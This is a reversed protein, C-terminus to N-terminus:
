AYRWVVGDGGDIRFLGMYSLPLKSGKGSWEVFKMLRNSPAWNVHDRQGDVIYKETERSETPHYLVLDRESFSWDDPQLGRLHRYRALRDKYIKSGLSRMVATDFVVQRLKSGANANTERLVDTDPELFVRVPLERAGLLIQAAAKHQGDFLRVVGAGNEDPRWWGLAIHLQPRRRHFEEMLPRLNGIGRPNIKEDHDLHDLPLTAFFSKMGSLRDDLIPAEVVGPTGNQTLAFRVSGDRYVFRLPEATQRYDELLRGLNAGRPAGNERAEEHLREIQALGRAVDLHSAAKSRNCVAHVLAFNNEDDTGGRALPSIHDIELADRFVEIDIDQRCIYCRGRQRAYLKQQLSQRQEEALSALYKSTM